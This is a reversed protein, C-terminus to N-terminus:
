LSLIDNRKRPILPFDFYIPGGHGSEFRNRLPCCIKDVNVNPTPNTVRGRTSCFVTPIVRVPRQVSHPPTVERQPVEERIPTILNRADCELAVAIRALTEM